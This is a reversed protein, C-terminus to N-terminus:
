QCDGRAALHVGGRLDLGLTVSRAGLKVLWEPTTPAQSLAVVYKEGLIQQIVERAALQQDDAKLRILGSKGELSTQLVDLGAQKLAKEARNLDTNTIEVSGRTGSIQVAPDEPYLNPLAYVVGIGIVLLILLNKWLPYRNLM